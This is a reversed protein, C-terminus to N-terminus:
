VKPKKSDESTEQPPNVPRFRRKIWRFLSVGRFSLSVVLALVVAIVIQNDMLFNYIQVFNGVIGWIYIFSQCNTTDSRSIPWGECEWMLLNPFARMEIVFTRVCLSARMSDAQVIEVVFGELGEFVNQKLFRKVM